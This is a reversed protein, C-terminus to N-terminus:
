ALLHAGNISNALKKLSVFEAISSSDSRISACQDEQVIQTDMTAQAKQPCAEQLSSSALDVRDGFVSLLNRDGCRQPHLPFMAVPHTREHVDHRDRRGDNSRIKCCGRFFSDACTFLHYHDFSSNDVKRGFENSRDM